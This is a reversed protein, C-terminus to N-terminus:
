CVHALSSALMEDFYGVLPCWLPLAVQTALFGSSLVIRSGGTPPAVCPKLSALVPLLDPLLSRSRLVHWRELYDFGCMSLYWRFYTFSFWLVNLRAVHVGNLWLSGGSM